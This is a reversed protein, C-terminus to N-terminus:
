LTEKRTPDSYSKWSQRSALYADLDAETVFYTARNGSGIRTALLSGRWIAQRLTVPAHGCLRGAEALSLLPQHEGAYM